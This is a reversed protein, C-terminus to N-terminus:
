LVARLPFYIGISRSSTGGSFLFRLALTIIASFGIVKDKTGVTLSIKTARCVDCGVKGTNFMELYNIPLTDAFKKIM